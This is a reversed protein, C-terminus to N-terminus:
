AAAEGQAWLDQGYAFEELVRNTSAPLCWEVDVPYTTMTFGQEEFWCVGEHVLTLQLQYRGAQSPPIVNLDIELSEGPGVVGPLPTRVGDFHVIDGQENLWHYSANIPTSESNEWTSTMHNSIAIRLKEPMGARLGGLLQKIVATGAYRLKESGYHEAERPTPPEPFVEGTRLYDLMRKVSDGNLLRELWFSGVKEVDTEVPYIRLAHKVLEAKHKRRLSTIDLITDLVQCDGLENM